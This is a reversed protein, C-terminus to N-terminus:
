EDISIGKSPRHLLPWRWKQFVVMVFFARMLPLAIHDQQREDTWILISLTHYAAM